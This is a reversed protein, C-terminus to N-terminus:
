PRVAKFGEDGGVLEAELHPPSENLAMQTASGARAAPMVLVPM